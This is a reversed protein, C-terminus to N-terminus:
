SVSNNEKQKKYTSLRKIIELKLEPLLTVGTKSEKILQLCIIKNEISLMSIYHFRFYNLNKIIEKESFHNSNELTRILDLIENAQIKLEGVTLTQVDKCDYFEYKTHDKLMGIEEENFHKNLNISCACINVLNAFYGDDSNAGQLGATETAFSRSKNFNKNFKSIYILNDDNDFYSAIEKYKFTELKNMEKLVVVDILTEFPRFERFSMGLYLVNERSQLSIAYNFRNSLTQQESEALRSLIEKITKKDPKQPENLKLIPKHFTEKHINLEEVSSFQENKSRCILYFCRISSKHDEDEDSDYEDEEDKEIKKNKKDDNVQQENSEVREEEDFDVTWCNKDEIRLFNSIKNEFNMM